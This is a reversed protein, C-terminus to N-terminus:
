EGEARVKKAQEHPEDTESHPRKSYAAVHPPVVPAVPVPAGNAPAAGAGASDDHVSSLCFVDKDAAARFIQISRSHIPIITSV